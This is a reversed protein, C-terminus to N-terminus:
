HPLSSYFRFRTFYASTVSLSYISIILVTVAFVVKGSSFVKIVSLDSQLM